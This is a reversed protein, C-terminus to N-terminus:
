ANRAERLQKEGLMVKKERVGVALERIQVSAERDRTDGVSAKM